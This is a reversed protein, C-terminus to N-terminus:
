AKILRLQCKRMSVFSVWWNRFADHGGVRKGLSICLAEPWRLWVSQFSWCGRGIIFICGLGVFSVAIWPLMETGIRPSLIINALKLGASHHRRGEKSVSRNLLKIVAVCERAQGGAIVIVRGMSLTPQSLFIIGIGVM